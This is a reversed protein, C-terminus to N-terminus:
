RPRQCLPPGWCCTGCWLQSNELFARDQIALPLERVLATAVAGDNAPFPLGPLEPGNAASPFKERVFYFGVLGAYVNTRTLGLTHDHYRNTTPHAPTRM